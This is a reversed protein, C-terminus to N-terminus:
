LKFVKYEIPKRPDQFAAFHMEKVQPNKKQNLYWENFLEKVEDLSTPRKVSDQLQVLYDIIKGNWGYSTFRYNM